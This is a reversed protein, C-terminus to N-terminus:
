ANESEDVLSLLDSSAPMDIVQWEDPTGPWVGSRQCELLRDLTRQNECALVDLDNEKLEVLWVHHPPKPHVVVLRAGAVRLGCTQLGTRYHAAQHMWGEAWARFPVSRECAFRSVKLDYIYDDAFFDLRGKCVAGHQSWLVSLEVTQAETAKALAEAAARKALFAGAVGRVIEAQTASLIEFEAHELKWAKGEKTAFSMGDPKFRYREAFRQPELIAMHCATGLQMADTPEDNQARRWPVLAPPGERMAKLDSSGWAPLAHYEAAAYNKLIQNM